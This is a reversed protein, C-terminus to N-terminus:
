GRNEPEPSCVNNVDFTHPLKLIMVEFLITMYSGCHYSSSESIGHWLSDSVISVVAKAISTSGQLVLVYSCSFGRLVGLFKRESLVSTITRLDVSSYFFRFM